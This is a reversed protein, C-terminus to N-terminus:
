PLFTRLATELYCKYHDAVWQALKILKDDFYNQSDLLQNIPLVKFDPQDIFGVIYGTQPKNRLTVSVKNGITLELDEPVSYSYIKNKNVLVNAYQM